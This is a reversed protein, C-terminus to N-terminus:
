NMSYSSTSMPWRFSTVVSRLSTLMAV